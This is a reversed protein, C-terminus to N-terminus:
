KESQHNILDVHFIEPGTPRLSGGEPEVSVKLYKLLSIDEAKYYVRTSGNRLQLLQGNWYDDVHVVWLQYDSRELPILGEALFILENTEENLWLEGYVNQSTLSVLPQRATEPQRLLQQEPVQDHQAIIYGQSSTETLDTQNDHFYVYLAIAFIVSAILSSAMFIRKSRDEKRFPTVNRNTISQIKQNLAASPEIITKNQLIKRWHEMETRCTDCIKIHEEVKVSEERALANLVYDVMKMEDIHKEM